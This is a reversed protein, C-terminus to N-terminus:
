FDGDSAGGARRSCGMSRCTQIGIKGHRYEM